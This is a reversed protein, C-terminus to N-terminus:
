CILKHYQHSYGYQDWLSYHFPHIPNVATIQNIQTKHALQIYYAWQVYQTDTQLSLLSKVPITSITYWGRLELMLWNMSVILWIKLLIEEKGQQM